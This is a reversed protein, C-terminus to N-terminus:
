NAALFALLDEFYGPQIITDNHMGHAYTKFTKHQSGCLEYLKRFHAPPIIEDKAGGLFLAPMEAPVKGVVDESRWSQTVVPAFWRLLPVVNPVVKNISLFTNELVVGDVMPLTAACHVAVAGGLSRGYLYLATNAFADLERVHRVVAEADAKLGRESPSGGSRGYGRYDMTVVNHGADHLVQAIPLAHGMNGANPGLMLVTKPAKAAQRAPIVFIQLKVGDPSFVSQESYAMGYTQPTDVQSRSGAPLNSPYILFFQVKYVTYAFTALLLGGVVAYNM